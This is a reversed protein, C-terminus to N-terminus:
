YPNKVKKNALYRLISHLHFKQYELIQIRLLAVLVLFLILYLVQDFPDASVKSEVLEPSVYNERLASIDVSPPKGIRVCM